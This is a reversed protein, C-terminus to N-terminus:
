LDTLRAMQLARLLEGVAPAHSFEGCPTHPPDADFMGSVSGLGSEELHARFPLLVKRLSHQTEKTLHRVKLCTGAYSGLLWAWVTGQHVANARHFSDGGFHPQFQPHGPQLTRLGFPTLLENEAVFLIREMQKRTFPTFPLGAAIVMNPRVAPDKVSGAVRDYVVGEPTLFREQFSEEVLRCLQLYAAARRLSLREAIQAMVNLACYWLANVEVTKGSRPTVARGPMDTRIGPERADMWTLPLEEQTLRILGDEDMEIGFATGELYAEVIDRMPGLMKRAVFRLDRTAKWYHWVAWFLWLSTDASDYEPAGTEQAFRVPLLGGKLHEVLTALVAKAVEFRKTCVTLGPLAILADRGQCGSGPFGALVFAKRFYRATEKRGFSHASQKDSSAPEHVLFSDSTWRLRSTLPGSEEALLTRALVVQTNELRRQHFALDVSGRRGTSAVFACSEGAKLLYLLQGPSWLDELVRGSEEREQPYEFNKYWCPSKEVMEATHHIVLPPFAPYPQMVLEGPREEMQTRFAPSENSTLRFSRVAVLPRIALMIPDHAEKLTYGIVVANESPLLFVTKELLFGGVRYLFTPWPDLRFEELYRYGEPHIVNGYRHTALDTRGNPVVIADDVASLMVARNWPPKVAAVLLGHERRTNMGIVTSSAYGGIGNTIIWEKSAAAPLDRCLRTDFRIPPVAKLHSAPRGGRAAQHHHMQVSGSDDKKGKESM